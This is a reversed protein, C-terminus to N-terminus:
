AGHWRENPAQVVVVTGAILAEGEILFDLQRELVIWLKVTNEHFYGLNAPHPTPM